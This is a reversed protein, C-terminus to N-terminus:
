RRTSPATSNSTLEQKLHTIDRTFQRRDDQLTRKTELPVLTHTKLDHRASALLSAGIGLAIVGVILASLWWAGHLLVALGLILAAALSLVGVLVVCAAIAVKAADGGIRAVADRAEAKALAAEARVLSGTDTGLRRFLEGISLEDSTQGASVREPERHQRVPIEFDDDNM